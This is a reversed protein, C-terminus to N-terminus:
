AFQLDFYLRPSSLRLMADGLFQVGGADSRVRVGVGNSSVRPDVTFRHITVPGTDTIPRMFFSPRQPEILSTGRGRGQPVVPDMESWGPWDPATFVLAQDLDVAQEVHFTGDRIIETLDVPGLVMALDNGNKQVALVRGVCRDTILVIKDQAIEGA